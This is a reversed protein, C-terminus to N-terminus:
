KILSVHGVYSHENGQYDFVQIKWVYVDIQAIDEGGNARGDWGKGWRDTEWILNGWRDFIWMKFRDEDIGVGKPFFTENESNGNPTFANPVFIVFDPDIRVTKMATDTCGYQTTVTLIVQYSGSDTYTFTPNQVTSSSNLVDGFSWSWANPNGQSLDTFQITGNLVTTPQPSMSFDAVPNPYVTVYAPLTVSNV